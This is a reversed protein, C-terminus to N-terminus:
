PLGLLQKRLAPESTQPSLWIGFFLRGFLPDALQRGPAGNVFFRTGREPELRGSLRDGAQVDPFAAEMEALWRRATPEDIEQQRRMELLSRAAIERGQLSRAYALELAMPATWWQPGPRAAAWLRIEYVLLGFFRLRGEGQLRWDPLEALETPLATAASPLALLAPMALLAHRRDM